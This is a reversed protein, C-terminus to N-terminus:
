SVIKATKGDKENCFLYTGGALTINYWGEGNSLDMVKSGMLDHLIMGNSKAWIVGGNNIITPYIAVGDAEVADVNGVCVNCYEPTTEEPAFLRFRGLVM